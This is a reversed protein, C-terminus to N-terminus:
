DHMTPFVPIEWNPNTHLCKQFPMIGDLELELKNGFRAIIYM